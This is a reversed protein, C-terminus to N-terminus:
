TLGQRVLLEEVARNAEDMAQNTFAAAGADSNAISVLGFRQRGLIHPREEPPVDPDALSDYTYAYGYPWRNVTVALIDEAPDFDTGALMRTLQQRLDLEFKQFSATLLEQQGARNQEKRPLGPKNPNAIMNVLIPEEPAAVGSYGGVTTGPNLQVHPYFMGPASFRSIGLKVFPTWRRLLVNTYVMPVKVPYLLAQKQREPIEPVLYPILRNYCALICNRARVACLKGSANQRYAIDLWRANGPSGEHKVRVVPSNLRIRMTSGEADLKSYDLRAGVITNMSQDGPLAGPVLRSVLLRAVSANGDPFHFFFSGENYTEELKLGLGNFGISGHQAAELAPLTDVRKNNREGDGLFVALAGPDIKAVHLLYDQYSMKALRAKKEEVTMGTMYDPNKGHLRVLDRQAAPSLPAQAFFDKWPTRGLGPVVRDEGFHEKDFFMASGLKYKAELEHNIFEPYRAVEIGLESLLAKAGYSYPYPTAVAMTGGFGLYTKGAHEFQNRKAHGGIDDQNDLILIRQDEGLAKRYFHAASLGSIGAGVIVLDYSETIEAAPVPFDKYKATRLNEFEAISAPYNGRLGSRLPPYNEATLGSDAPAGAAAQAMWGSGTVQTSAATVAMGNLFDRRTIPRDMGLKRFLADM